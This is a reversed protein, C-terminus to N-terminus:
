FIGTKQFIGENIKTPRYLVPIPLRYVGVRRVREERRHLITERFNKLWFFSSINTFLEGALQTPLSPFRWSDHLRVHITVYTYLVSNVIIRTHFISRMMWMRLLLFFVLVFVSPRTSITSLQIQASKVRNLKRKKCKMEERFLIRFCQSCVWHRRLNLVQHFFLKWLRHLKFIGVPNTITLKYNRCWLLLDCM